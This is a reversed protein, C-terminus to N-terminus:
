FLLLVIYNRTQCLLFTLIFVNELQEIKNMLEILVILRTNEIHENVKNKNGNKEKNIAEFLIGKSYM